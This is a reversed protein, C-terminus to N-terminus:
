SFHRLVTKKPITFGDSVTEVTEQGGVNHPEGVPTGIPEAEPTGLPVAVPM